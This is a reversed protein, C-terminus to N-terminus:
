EGGRHAKRSAALINRFKRIVRTNIIQSYKAVRAAKDTADLGKQLDEDRTTMAASAPATLSPGLEEQILEWVQAPTLFSLWLTDLAAYPPDPERLRWPKKGVFHLISIDSLDFMMPHHHSIRKLTNYRRDLRVGGSFTENMFGQDGGDYSPVTSIQQMLRQFTDASPECVFVGSNFRDYRLEIGLDPAAAFGEILFLEDVSKLVVADADIFVVRDVSSMEFVRLKTYTDAFRAAAGKLPLPNVIPEVRLPHVNSSMIKGPVVNPTHMAILPVDSVASLSNALARVGHHYNGGTILTVYACRRGDILASPMQKCSAQRVGSATASKSCPKSGLLERLAPSESALELKANPYQNRCMEFFSIDRERSHDKEYGPALDKSQLVSIVDQPVDYAYRKTIDSYLDIGSFYIERFGVSLAFALVQFGQTPLPRGMMARALSANTCISAWHDLQPGFRNDTTRGPLAAAMTRMPAFFARIDYEGTQSIAALRDQLGSNDISWFFGDVRTGYRKQEELFFWNMRFVVDDRKPTLTPQSASPGNGVIFLRRAGADQYVSRNEAHTREVNRYTKPISM